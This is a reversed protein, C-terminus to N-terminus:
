NFHLGGKHSKSNNREQLRRRQSAQSSDRSNLAEKSSQRTGIRSIKHRTLQM